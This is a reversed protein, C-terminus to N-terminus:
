LITETVYKLFKVEIANYVNIVCLKFYLYYKKPPPPKDIGYQAM